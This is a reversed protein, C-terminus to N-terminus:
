LRWGHARFTKEITANLQAATIANMKQAILRRASIM